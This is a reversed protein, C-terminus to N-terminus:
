QGSPRILATGGENVDSNEEFAEQGTVHVLRSFKHRYRIQYIVKQTRRSLFSGEMIETRLVKCGTSAREKLIETM